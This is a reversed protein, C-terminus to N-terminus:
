LSIAARRRMIKVGRITKSKHAHTPVNDHRLACPPIAHRARGGYQATNVRTTSYDRAQQPTAHNAVCACSVLFNAKISGSSAEIPSTNKGSLVSRSDVAVSSVCGSRLCNGSPDGISRCGNQPTNHEQPTNHKQPTTHVIAHVICARHMCSSQMTHNTHVYLWTACM